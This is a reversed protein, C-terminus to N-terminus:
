GIIHVKIMLQNSNCDLDFLNILSLLTLFYKLIHQEDLWGIRNKQHYTISQKLALSSLFSCTSASSVLFLSKGTWPYSYFTLFIIVTPFLLKPIYLLVIQGQTFIRQSICSLNHLFCLFNYIAFLELSVDVSLNVVPIKEPFLLPLFSSLRSQLSSDMGLRKVHRGINWPRPLSFSYM